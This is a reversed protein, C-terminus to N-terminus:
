SARRRQGGSASSVDGEGHRERWREDADRLLEIVEADTTQGFREYWQGVAAFPSPEILCRVDDAVDRLREATDPACAPVALIMRYPSHHAIARLAAEATVGTALGDDVLIVDRDALRPLPRGVRYEAVRRALELREADVLEGFQRRGIGMRRLQAEDVVVGGGESIAGIGFESRGPAGVKRAVFVELPADLATAVEYGVPVGGRPLALVVPDILTLLRLDAALQRGAHRRDEFRM